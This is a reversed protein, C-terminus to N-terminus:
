MQLSVGICCFVCTTKSGKALFKNMFAINGTTFAVFANPPTSNFRWVNQVDTNAQCCDDDESVPRETRAPVPRRINCLCVATGRKMTENTNAM